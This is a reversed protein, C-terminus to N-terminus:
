YRVGVSPKLLGEPRVILVGVIILYPYATNWSESVYGTLMQTLIGIFFAALLAGGLRDFGGIIVAAFSSLLLGFGLTPNDSLVPTILLGGLGAVAASLGFMLATLWSVRIGQLLAAERDSALARVQRGLTTANLMFQIIAFVALTVGIILVYQYSIAAGFLHWVGGGFPAPLVKPTSSFVLIIVAEILLSLAFTSIIIALIPRNKLPEYGVRWVVVGCLGSLLIALIYGLAVPVHLDTLLWVGFYGGLTLLDGQAFNVVGTTKFLLVIGIAVLGAVAGDSIGAFLLAIFRAM